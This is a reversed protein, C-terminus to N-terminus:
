QPVTIHPTTVCATETKNESVTLGLASFADVLITGRPESGRSSGRCSARMASM